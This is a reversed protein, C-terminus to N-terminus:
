SIELFVTEKVKRRESHAQLVASFASDGGVREQPDWAVLCAVASPNCIRIRWKKGFVGRKM